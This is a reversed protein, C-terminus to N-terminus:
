MFKCPKIVGLIVVAMTKNVWSFVLQVYMLTLLHANIIFHVM